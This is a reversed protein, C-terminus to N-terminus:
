CRMLPWCFQRILTVGYRVSIVFEFNHAYFPTHIDPVASPTSFAFEFIAM